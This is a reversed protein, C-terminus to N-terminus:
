RNKPERLTIPHNTLVGKTRAMEVLQRIREYSLKVGWRQKVWRSLRRYSWYESKENERMPHRSSSLRLKILQIKQAPTLRSAPIPHLKDYLGTVGKERFNILWKELTSKTKINLQGMIQNIGLGKSALLIAKARREVRRRAQMFKINKISKLAERTPRDLNVLDSQIM